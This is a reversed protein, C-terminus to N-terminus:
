YYTDLKLIEEYVRKSNNRDHFKFFEDVRKQYTEDMMCGNELIEIIHEQLEDPSKAVPGFGDKQYDFYSKEQDFHYSDDAQYYIVPKKLYAFDFFM